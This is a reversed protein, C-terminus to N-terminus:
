RQQQLAELQQIQQQLLTEAARLAEEASRLLKEAAQRTTPARQANGRIWTENRSLQATLQKVTQGLVAVQAELGGVRRGVDAAAVPAAGGSRSPTPTREPPRLPRWTSRPPGVRDGAQPEPLPGAALDRQAFPQSRGRALFASLYFGWARAQAHARRDEEATADRGRQWGASLYAANIADQLRRVERGILQQMQYVVRERFDAEPATRIIEMPALEGLEEASGAGGGDALSAVLADSLGADRRALADSDTSPGAARSSAAPPAGSRSPSPAPTPAPTPAPACASCGGLVCSAGAALGLALGIRRLSSSVGGFMRRMM